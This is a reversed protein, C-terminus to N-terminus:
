DLNTKATAPVNVPMLLGKDGNDSVLILANKRGTFRIEANPIITLMDLLYNANVTTFQEGFSYNIYKVKNAKQIKIYAQLKNIDPTDIVTYQEYDAVRDFIAVDPYMEDKPVQPLPLFNKLIACRYGDTFYQVGKKTHAFELATRNQGGQKLIRKAAQLKKANGTAKAETRTIEDKLELYLNSIFQWQLEPNSFKENHEIVDLILTKEPSLDIINNITELTKEPKM